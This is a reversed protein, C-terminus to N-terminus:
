VCADRLILFTSKVHMELTLYSVECVTQRWCCPPKAGTAPAKTSFSLSRRLLPWARVQTGPHSPTCSLPLDVASADNYCLNGWLESCLLPLWAVLDQGRRRRSIEKPRTILSPFGPMLPIAEKLDAWTAPLMKVQCFKMLYEVKQECSGTNLPSAEALASCRFVQVVTVRLGPLSGASM